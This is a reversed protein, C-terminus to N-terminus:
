KLRQVQEIGGIDIQEYKKYYLWVIMLYNPLNSLIPLSEQEGCVIQVDM